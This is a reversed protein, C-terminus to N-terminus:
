PTLRPASLRRWLHPVSAPRGRPSRCPLTRASARVRLSLRQAYAIQKETPPRHGLTMADDGDHSAFEDLQVRTAYLASRCSGAPTAPLPRVAARPLGPRLLPCTLFLLRMAEKNSSSRAL